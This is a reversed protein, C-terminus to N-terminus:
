ATPTSATSPSGNGGGVDAESALDAGDEALLIEVLLEVVPAPLVGAFNPPLLEWHQNHGAEKRDDPMSMTVESEILMLLKPLRLPMPNPPTGAPVINYTCTGAECTAAILGPPSMENLSHGEISKHRVSRYDRDEGFGGQGRSSDAPRRRCDIQGIRQRLLVAKDPLIIIESWEIEVERARQPGHNM